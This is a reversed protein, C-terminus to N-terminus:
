IETQVLPTFNDSDGLSGGLWVGESIRITGDNSWGSFIDGIEFLNINFNGYGKQIFKFVDYRSLSVESIKLWDETTGPISNSGSVNQYFLGSYETVEGVRYRKKESWSDDTNVIISKLQAM